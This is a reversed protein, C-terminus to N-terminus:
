NADWGAKFGKGFDITADIIAVVGLVKGAGKFFNGIAGGGDIELMEDIALEQFNGM